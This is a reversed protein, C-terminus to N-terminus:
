WTIAQPESDSADAESNTMPQVSADTFYGAVDVVLHTTGFRNFFAVWGPIQTIAAPPLGTGIRVIVLNPVTQGPVFNLNSVGPLTLMDGPFVAVWGIPTRSPSRSM